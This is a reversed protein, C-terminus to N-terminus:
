EALEVTLHASWRQGMNIEIAEGLRARTDVSFRESGHATKLQLACNLKVYDAEGAESPTVKMTLEPTEAKGLSIEAPVGTRTVVRPRAQTVDSGEFEATIRYDRAGEASLWCGSLVLWCLLRKM